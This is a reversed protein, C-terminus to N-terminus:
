KVYVMKGVYHYERTYIHYFYLGDNIDRPKWEIKLMDSQVMGSFVQDVMRGGQDFVNVKVSGHKRPYFRITVNDKVPNPFSLHRKGYFEDQDIHTIVDGALGIAKLQDLVIGSRAQFYDNVLRDQEKLWHDNKTYLEYPEKKYTHNDRRYDGWRASEAIIALGIEEARELWIAIVSDPSLLGGPGLLENARRSFQIRFAPNHRLQNYLFSPRDENNEEVVNDSKGNFTRESDWPFFQFGKGPNFRNRAAIWNHHDWDKNGVYFNLLMYDILNEIDLYAEKSPNEKGFEDKGQIGFYSAADSLGEAAMEMMQNWADKNGEAVEAYDKIVDFDEKGGELYDDMFDDDMRECINYLGWYLGNIYLHAFKNRASIHGMKRYIDKVWSDNIYQTRNRQTEDWHLWTQNFGARLVLSNFSSTASDDFFTYKLQKPGYEDRFALRFSHKPNKEPVRSAGGHIRVGCDVQFGKSGDPLIYEVSVPREWDEGLAAASEATHIYIGGINPDASHSFFNDRHTSISISPISKLSPVFEDKYDPHEVIEPDVMYDAPAAGEIKSFPGWNEPYGEPQGPQNKVKEPFIFTRTTIMSSVDDMLTVARVVYTSDIQIPGTYEIGNTTGPVSGDLTYKIKVGADDSHIQLDFSAEYLGHDHSFKPASLLTGAANTEGPTSEDMYKENGDIYGYSIDPRQYPFQLEFQITEGDPKSLLIWEGSSSLKFNTHLENNHKDKGSAFLVLFSNAEIKVAPFIWKILNDPNDSLYWGDLDIPAGNPNFIEIWDSPEGDDDLITSTNDAMFESIYVQSFDQAHTDISITAFCLFAVCLSSPFTFILRFPILYRDDFDFM